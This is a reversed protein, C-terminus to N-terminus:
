CPTLDVNVFALGYVFEMLKGVQEKMASCAEGETAYNEVGVKDKADSFYVEWGEGTQEMCIRNKHNGKLSYFKGPVLHGKFFAGLEKTTM